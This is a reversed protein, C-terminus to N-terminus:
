QQTIVFEVRRNRERGAATRNTEIPQDPGFGKAEMRDPSVGLGILHARVSDARQQSLLVNKARKGRSDTHGEIRATKVARDRIFSAAKALTDKAAPQLTDRDFDFLVDAALEIRLETDTEKVALDATTAGFDEVKFALDLVKAKAGPPLEPQQVSAGASLALLLPVFFTAATPEM